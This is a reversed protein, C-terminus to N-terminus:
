LWSPGKVLHSFVLKLINVATGRIRSPQGSSIVMTGFGTFRIPFAMVHQSHLIAGDESSLWQKNGKFFDSTSYSIWSQWNPIVFHWSCAQLLTCQGPKLASMLCVTLVHSAHWCKKHLVGCFWKYQCRCKWSRTLVLESSNKHSPISQRITM